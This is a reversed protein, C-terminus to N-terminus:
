FSFFLFLVIQQVLTGNVCDLIPFPFVSLFGAVSAKGTSVCAQLCTDRYCITVAVLLGAVVGYLLHLPSDPRQMKQEWDPSHLHLRGMTVSALPVYFAQPGQSHSGWEFMNLCLCSAALLSGPLPEGSLFALRTYQHGKTSRPKKEKMMKEYKLKKYYKIVIQM